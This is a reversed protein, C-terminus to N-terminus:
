SPTQGCTIAYVNVSPFDSYTLQAEGGFEGVIRIRALDKPGDQVVVQLVDLVSYGEPGRWVERAAEDTLSGVRDEQYGPRDCDWERINVGLVLPQIQPLGKRFVLEMYGIQNGEFKVNERSKYGSGAVVLFWVSTISPLDIRVEEIHAQNSRSPQVKIGKPIYYHHTSDYENPVNFRVDGLWVMGQPADQRPYRTDYKPLDIAHYTFKDQLTTPQPLDKQTKSQKEVLERLRALDEFVVAWDALRPEGWVAWNYHPQGLANTRFEVEYKQNAPPPLVLAHFRWEFSDRIEQFVRRRNVYIQFRIRNGKHPVFGSKKITRDALTRSDRIGTYFTLVMYGAVGPPQGSFRLIADTKGDPPPHQYISERAVGMCSAVEVHTDPGSMPLVETPVDLFDAFKYEWNRDSDGNPYRLVRTELHTIREAIYQRLAANSSALSLGLWTAVATGMVVWWNETQGGGPHLAFLIVGVGVGLLLRTLVGRRSDALVGARLAPLFTRFPMSRISSFALVIGSSVTLALAAAMVIIWHSPWSIKSELLANFLLILVGFLLQIWNPISGWDRTPQDSM